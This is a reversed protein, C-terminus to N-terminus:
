QAPSPAAHGAEQPPENTFDYILFTATRDVPPRTRLLEIVPAMAPTSFNGYLFTTSVALRRGRLFKLAEDPGTISLRHVPLQRIPLTALEPDTGFYWVYFKQQPHETLWRQL